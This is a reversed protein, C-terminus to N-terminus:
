YSLANPARLGGASLAQSWKSFDSSPGTTVATPHKYIVTSIYVMDCVTLTTQQIFPQNGRM